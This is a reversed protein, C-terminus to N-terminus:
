TPQFCEVLVTDVRVINEVVHVLEHHLVLLHAEKPTFENEELTPPLLLRFGHLLVNSHSHWEDMTSHPLGDSESQDFAATEFEGTARPNHGILRIGVECDGHIIDDLPLLKHKPLETPQCKLTHLAFSNSWLGNPGIIWEAVAGSHWIQERFGTDLSRDDISNM